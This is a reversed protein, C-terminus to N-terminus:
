IDDLLVKDEAFYEELERTMEPDIPVREREKRLNENLYSTLGLRIHPIGVGHLFRNIRRVSHMLLPARRAKATNKVPFHGRGDDDLGLFELLIRYERRPDAQLDELRIVHVREKPVQRYLRALQEGLKCRAGYQLLQPDRCHKPLSAGYLREEQLRWAKSFDTEDEDGDYISQEHLSPAMRAPDRIMVVFKPNDAYALIAPVATRSYLYATSGECVALHSESAKVFLQEYRPLTMPPRRLSFDFSFLQPEKIPSFYVQPHEALWNALSTTGCKPAGIIFVNPKTM